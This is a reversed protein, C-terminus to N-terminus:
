KCLQVYLVQYYVLIIYRALKKLKSYHEDSQYSSIFMRLIRSALTLWRAASLEGIENNVVGSIEGAITKAWLGIIYDIKSHYTTEVSSKTIM